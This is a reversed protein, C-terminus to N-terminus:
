GATAAVPAGDAEAPAEDAADIALTLPGAAEGEEATEEDDVAPTAAAGGRAAAGELRQVVLAHVDLTLLDTGAIRVRV